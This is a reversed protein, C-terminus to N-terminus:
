AADLVVRALRERAADDTMLTDTVVVRLGLAKVSPALAQDVRDLVFVDAVGTYQRAVGLASVEHGLSRLMRDAPGKVARGGIIGSVAVAAVGRSRATQLAAEIGPVALIPRVSVFPNSPGIVIAEADDFAALVEPTAGAEELGRFRLDRVEPEQHRRVFYDQFDLWGDDTLVETRVPQDAMPLIRARVGLARQLDLAIETPRDGERLRRTRVVHTALDRDGLRFWTEEGYRELMAAAAFTEGAIGWGWERNDIGALTYMVTDHDPSVTLGHRELDDATNVVVTLDEGVLAQLGHALRAGGVGGALLVVSRAPGPARASQHM